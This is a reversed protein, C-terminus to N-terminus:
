LGLLIRLPILNRSNTNQEKINAYEIWRLSDIYKQENIYGNIIKETRPDLTCFLFALQEAKEGFVDVISQRNIDLRKSLKYIDTGYISHFLGAKVEYEPRKLERLINATGLLHDYLTRGSHPLYGCGIDTLFKLEEELM